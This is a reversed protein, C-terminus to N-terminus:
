YLWKRTEWSKKSFVLKKRSLFIVFTYRVIWLDMFNIFYLRERITM